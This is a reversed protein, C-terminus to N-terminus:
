MSLKVNLRLEADLTVKVGSRESFEQFPLIVSTWPTRPEPSTIVDNSLGVVPLCSLRTNAFRAAPSYERTKWPTTPPLSQPSPLLLNPPVIEATGSGPEIAINPEARSPRVASPARRRFFM